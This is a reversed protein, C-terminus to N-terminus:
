FHDWGNGFHPLRRGDAQHCLGDCLQGIETVQVPVTALDSKFDALAHLPVAFLVEYDDGGTYLKAARKPYKQAVLRAPQSLPVANLDLALTLGSADALRCADKLLGDSIDLAASAWRALVERMALRPEPLLYRGVLFSTDEDTLAAAYIHLDRRLELGLGADGITGTVFLRDGVAAGRRPVFRVPTASGAEAGAPAGMMTIGVTLPGSTRDTDGGVLVCGFATQAAALGQSFHRMWAREPAQPFGLTMVYAVPQAAKAALDSANVALAKWAIDGPRDDPFFHVGSVIPDTSVVLGKPFDLLACDDALGFAGPFGAALPALFRGVLETESTVRGDFSQADLGMM